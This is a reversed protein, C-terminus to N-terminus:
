YFESLYPMFDFTRGIGGEFRDNEVVLRSDSLSNKRRRGEFFGGPLRLFRRSPSQMRRPPTNYWQVPNSPPAQFLQTKRFDPDSDLVSKHKAAEVGPFAPKQKKRVVRRPLHSGTHGPTDRVSGVM